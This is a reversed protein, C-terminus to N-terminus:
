PADIDVPILYGRVSRTDETRTLRTGEGATLTAPADDSFTAIEKSTWLSLGDACLFESSYTAGGLTTWTRGSFNITDCVQGDDLVVGIAGGIGEGAAPADDLGPAPEFQADVTFFERDRLSTTCLATDAGSRWCALFRRDADGHVSTVLGSSRAFQQVRRYRPPTQGPSTDLAYRESGGDPTRLALLPSGSGGSGGKRLEIASITADNGRGDCTMSWVTGLSEDARFTAVASGDPADRWDLPEGYLRILDEVTDGPRIGDVTTGGETPAIGLLVGDLFTWLAGNWTAATDACTAPDTCDGRDDIPGPEPFDAIASRIAELTAGVEIGRYMRGTMTEAAAKTDQLATLRAALQAANDATVFM